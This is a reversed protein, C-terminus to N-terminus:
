NGRKVEAPMAHVHYYVYMCTLCGVCFIFIFSWLFGFAKLFLLMELFQSIFITFYSFCYFLHLCYDLTVIPQDGALVESQEGKRENGLNCVVM